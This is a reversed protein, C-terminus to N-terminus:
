STTDNANMAYRPTPRYKFSERDGIPLRIRDACDQNVDFKANVVVCSSSNNLSELLKDPRLEEGRCWGAVVLITLLGDFSRKEVALLM